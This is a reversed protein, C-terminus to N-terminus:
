DKLPSGVAPGAVATPARPTVPPTRLRVAEAEPDEYLRYDDRTGRSKERAQGARQSGARASRRRRPPGQTEPVAEDILGAALLSVQAPATASARPEGPWPDDKPTLGHELIFSPM